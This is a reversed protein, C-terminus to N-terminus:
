VVDRLLYIRVRHYAAEVYRGNREKSEYRWVGDIEELRSAQKKALYRYEERSVISRTRGHELDDMPLIHARIKFSGVEESCRCVLRIPEM